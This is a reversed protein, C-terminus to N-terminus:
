YGRGFTNAGNFGQGNLGSRGGQRQSGPLSAEAFPGSLGLASPVAVTVDEYGLGMTSLKNKVSTVRQQDLGANGSPEVVYTEPQRSDDQARQAIRSAALPALEATRGVFDAQYFVNLDQKAKLVQAEQINYIKTGAREPVAGAPIDACCDVGFIGGKSSCGALQTGILLAFVIGRSSKMLEGGFIM